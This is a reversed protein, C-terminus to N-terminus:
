PTELAPPAPPVPNASISYGGWAALAAGILGTLAGVVDDPIPVHALSFLWALVVAISGALGAGGTAAVVKPHVTM